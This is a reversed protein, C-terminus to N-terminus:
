FPPISDADPDDRDAYEKELAARKEEYELARRTGKNAQVRAAHEDREQQWRAERQLRLSRDKESERDERFATIEDDYFFRSYGGIRGRREDYLAQYEDLDDITKIHNDRWDGVLALIYDVPKGAGGFAATHIARAAIGPEFGLRAFRWALENVVVPAPPKGYCKRWAGDIERRFGDERAQADARASEEDENDKETQNNVGFGYNNNINNNIFPAYANAERNSIGNPVDNPTDSSIGNPMSNAEINPIIKNGFRVLYHIKYMPTAVKREGKIFDILGRQKLRNRLTEVAQKDFRGYANLEGNSVEFFDDPWDYTQTVANYTAEENAFYFLSVWLAIERSPICKKRAYEMFLRFQEVFNQQSM